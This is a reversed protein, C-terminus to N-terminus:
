SDSEKLEEIIEEVLKIPIVVAPSNKYRNYILQLKELVGAYEGVGLECRDADGYCYCIDSDENYYNCIGILRRDYLYSDMVEREEYCECCKNM